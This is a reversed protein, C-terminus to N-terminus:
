SKQAEINKRETKIFILKQLFSRLLLILLKGCRSAISVRKDLRLRILHLLLITLHWRLITKEKNIRM